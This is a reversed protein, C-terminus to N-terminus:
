LASSEYALTKEPRKETTRFHTVLSNLFLSLFTFLKLCLPYSIECLSIPWTLHNLSFFSKSKNNILLAIINKYMVFVDLTNSKFCEM